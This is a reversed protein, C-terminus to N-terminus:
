ESVGITGLVFRPDEPIFYHSDNEIELKNVGWITYGIRDGVKIYKVDEGVAVVDGYECLSTQANVLIQKKVVPKVLINNGFPKIM